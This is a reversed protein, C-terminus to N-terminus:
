THLFSNLELTIEEGLVDDVGGHALETVMFRILAGFWMIKWQAKQMFSREPICEM